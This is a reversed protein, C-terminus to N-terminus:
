TTYYLKYYPYSLCGPVDLASNRTGSRRKKYLSAAFRSSRKREMASERMPNRSGRQDSARSSGGNYRVEERVPELHGERNKMPIAEPCFVFTIEVTM